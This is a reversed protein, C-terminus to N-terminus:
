MRQLREEDDLKEIVARISATARTRLKQHHSTPQEWFFQLDPNYLAVKLYRKHAKVLDYENDFLESMFYPKPFIYENVLKGYSGLRIPKTVDLIVLKIGIACALRTPNLGLAVIKADAETINNALVKTGTFYPASLDSYFYIKEM